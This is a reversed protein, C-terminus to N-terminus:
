GANEAVEQLDWAKTATLSLGRKGTCSIHGSVLLMRPAFLAAGSNQQAKDFFAMDIVGTADDVSIFVVRKGNKMPPTQTAVRVGAVLVETRNPLYRLEAATVVGMRKLFPQYADLVHGNIETALVELEAQTQELQSLAKGSAPLADPMPFDLRSPPGASRSIAKPKANLSRVYAVIQGRVSSAPVLVDLAGILALNSLLKRSPNAREVFDLVNVYPANSVIRQIETAKIGKVDKLGLRIGLDGPKVRQGAKLPRIKETVYGEISRNVDIPLIPIGLRKAEAILLRKPYMGPDHELIGTMFEAPYHTKLWATQWTPLAFAVGHAKCFGFSGFGALVKWIEAIESDSFVREGSETFRNKTARRFRDEITVDSSELRRRLEDAQAYDIGMCDALIRIVHEHYIVVGHADSLFGEFRRHLSKHAKKNQKAAIYPAVMNGKMPGPRFLSIDAILDAYEDPQMKGILERQGPSEIQFMGLTHTSRIADFTEEDNQPISDIDIKGSESIYSADILLGGARATNKGHMNQIQNLTHSISSQMRVGLIDLKLLGLDDIDDKDFQSMAIGLGSPQVPTLSLLKEDSLLVGCPHMSLHRPLRDLRASLDILQSVKGDKLAIKAVEALEPKEILAQPFEKASFRWINSAVLDLLDPSLGLALGADRIAGRTRYRSSMSLLAVRHDGYKDFIAKYIEHRRHAEVDIDIDPLTSRVSGLFREFLLDHALPDVNSIRLLFNVVSGAGSGRAQHRIGLNTILDSIDSVTLFYSSFDFGSITELEQDLRNFVQERVRRSAYPYRYNVAAQCKEKLVEDPFGSIGILALEPVKPQRWGLDGQPDLVCREALALTQDILEHYTGNPLASHETIMRAIRHMKERPKLWAQGNLQEAFGGLPQLVGVADLVDGTIADDPTLYRVQNTLVAPTLSSKALELLRAAHPLSGPKGPQTFLCSVEIAVHGPLQEKWWKLCALASDTEGNLLARGVDSEIGLLITTHMSKDESVLLSAFSAPRLVPRMAIAGRLNLKKRWRFGMHAASVLRSLGAWGRGDNGGHALVTVTSNPAMATPTDSLPAVLLEAGVIAGVGAALCARIHRVAGYLGDRDTLAVMNAGQDIAGAVLEEPRATGYHASHASAVHLHTFGPKM